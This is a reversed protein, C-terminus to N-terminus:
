PQISQPTEDATENSEEKELSEGEPEDEKTDHSLGSFSFAKAKTKERPAFKKKEEAIANELSDFIQQVHEETYHYTAKNSLNGILSIDHLAKQVRREAMQEFKMMKEDTM